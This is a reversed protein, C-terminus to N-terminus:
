LRLLAAVAPLLPQHVVTPILVPDVEQGVVGSLMLTVAPPVVGRVVQVAGELVLHRVGQLIM